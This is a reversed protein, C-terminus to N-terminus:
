DIHTKGLVASSANFYKDKECYWLFIKIFKSTKNVKAVKYSYWVKRLNLSTEFFFTRTLHLIRQATSTLVSKKEKRVM